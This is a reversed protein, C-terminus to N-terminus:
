IMQRQARPVESVIIGALRKALSGKLAFSLFCLM